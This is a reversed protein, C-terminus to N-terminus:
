LFSKRAFGIASNLGLQIKKEIIFPLLLGQGLQRLFASVLSKADVDQIRRQQLYVDADEM